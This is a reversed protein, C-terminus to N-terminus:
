AAGGGRDSGPWLWRTALVAVIGGLLNLGVRVVAASWPLPRGFDSLLLLLVPSASTWYAYNVPRFAYAAAGSVGVIGAVAYPGPRCLLLLAAVVGGLSNGLLRKASKVRTEEATPRLTLLLSTVLWHGEGWLFGLAGTAATAAGVLLALRGAHRLVDPRAPRHPEKVVAPGRGRRRPLLLAATWLCGVLQLLGPVASAHGGNGTIGVLVVALAATPGVRPLLAGLFAAVAAGPALAAVGNGLLAVYIGAATVSVTRVALCRAREATGAGAPFPMAVLVAPLAVSAGAGPHEAWAGVVLPVSLAAGAALGDVYQPRGQPRLLDAFVGPVARAASEVSDAWRRLRVGM